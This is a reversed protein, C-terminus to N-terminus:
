TPTVQATIAFSCGTGNWRGSAEIEAVGAPTSMTYRVWGSPASYSGVSAWNTGASSGAPSVSTSTWLSSPDGDHTLGVNAFSANCNLVQVTGWGALDLLTGTGGSPVDGSVATFTAGGKAFTSSDLGDLTDADAAKATKGLFRGDATPKDYFKSTDPTGTAGKPGAPGALGAPGAPGAPLTGILRDVPVSKKKIDNGTLTGNKVDRGTLSSDKVQKGTVSVAAYSTGGLAIVLATYAVITGHAPRHFRM